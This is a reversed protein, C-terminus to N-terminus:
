RAFEDRNRVDLIPPGDGAEIRAYLAAPTTLTEAM